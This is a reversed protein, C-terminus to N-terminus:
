EYIVDVECFSAATLLFEDGNPGAIKKNFEDIKITTGIEKNCKDIIAKITAEKNVKKENEM